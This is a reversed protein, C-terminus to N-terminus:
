MGPVPFGATMGGLASNTMERVKDQASRIASLVLDELMEVDQPNVVEPKISVSVVESGGNMVVKVMGGGAVGEVTKQQLDEQAKVMQSQMKQAQKLLKNLKSMFREEEPGKGPTISAGTRRATV